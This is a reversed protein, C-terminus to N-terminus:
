KRLIKVKRRLRELDFNFPLFIPTRAKYEQYTDGFRIELEKEEYCKLFLIWVPLVLFLVWIIFWTSQFFLGLSILFLIIALVMPNRTRTYLWDSVLYKSSIILAFPAGLGKLALYFVTISIFWGCIIVLLLSIEKPFPIIIGRWREYTLIARIISAGLCIMISFHVILNIWYVYEVLPNRNLYLRGLISIPVVACVGGMIILLDTSPEFHQDILFRWIILILIFGILRGVASLVSSKM